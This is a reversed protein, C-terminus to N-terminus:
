DGSSGGGGLVEGGELLLHADLRERVAQRNEHALAGLRRDEGEERVHVHAAIALHGPDRPERVHELVHGELAGVPDPRRVVRLLLGRERRDLAGIGGVVDLPTAHHAAVLRLHLLELLRPPVPDGLGVREHDLVLEALDDVALAADAQVGERVRVLGAVEEGEGGVAELQPRVELGLAIECRHHALEVLLAVDDEFLAAHAGLALRDAAQDLLEQRGGEGGVGVPLGDHAPGGVQM